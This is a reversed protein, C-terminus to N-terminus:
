LCTPPRPTATGTEGGGADCQEPAADARTEEPCAPRLASPAPAPLVPVGPAGPTGDGATPEPEPGPPPGGSGPGGAAPPPPADLPNPSAAEGAAPAGASPRVPAADLVAAVAAPHAEEAASVDHSLGLATWFGASLAASLVLRRAWRTAAAPRTPVARASAVDERPEM